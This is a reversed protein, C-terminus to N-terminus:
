GKDKKPKPAKAPASDVLSCPGKAILTRLHHQDAPVDVTVEPIDDGRPFGIADPMPEGKKDRPWNYFRQWKPPVMGHSVAPRPVLHGAPCLMKVTARKRPRSMLM